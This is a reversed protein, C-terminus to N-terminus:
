REQIPKRVIDAAKATPLVSTPLARAPTLLCFWAGESTVTGAIKGFKPSQLNNGLTAWYRSSVSSCLQLWPLHPGAKRPHQSALARQCGSNSMDPGCCAASLSLKSLELRHSWTASATCFATIAQPMQKKNQRTEQSLVTHHSPPVPEQGQRHLPATDSDAQPVQRNIEAQPVSCTSWWWGWCIKPSLFFIWLLPLGSTATEEEKLSVSPALAPHPSM